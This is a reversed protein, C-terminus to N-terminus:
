WRWSDHHDTCVRPEAGVRSLARGTPRCIVAARLTMSSSGPIAVVKDSVALERDGLVHEILLPALCGNEISRDCTDTVINRATYVTPLVKTM